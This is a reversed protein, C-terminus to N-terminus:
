RLTISVIEPRNGTRMMPGWTGVGSSTYIYYNDGVKKLGYDYGKYIFYTIFGFPFIQGKHTHGSLQLNIGMKSINEVNEPAHYLLINPSGVYDKKLNELTKLIDKKEGMLPYSIGILKLGDVDVVEDDLVRLKTDKISRLAEDIGIYTEHNGTIFFIGDQSNINNLNDLLHDMKGDTGDLLDGTIVVMKPNISNVKEIIDKLFKEKHIIGLHIDSIQVITKDKWNQNIDPIHVSINKVIPRSANYVGWFSFLVFVGFVLGAIVKLNHAIEFYNLLGKLIWLILAAMFMNVLLGLWLSSVFYLYRLFTFNYKRTLFSALIFGLVLIVMSFSLINKYLSRSINFFRIVSFYLFWHSLFIILLFSTLFIFIGLSNNM